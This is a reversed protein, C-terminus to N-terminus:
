RGGEILTEIVKISQCPVYPSYLEPFMTGNSLGVEPTFIKNLDQNPTYAHGYMLNEPFLNKNNENM